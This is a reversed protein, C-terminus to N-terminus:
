ICSDITINLYVSMCRELDALTRILITKNEKKETKNETEVLSPISTDKSAYNDTNCLVSTENNYSHYGKIKNPYNIKLQRIIYHNYSSRESQESAIIISM